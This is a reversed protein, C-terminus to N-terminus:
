RLVWAEVNHTLSWPGPAIGQVRKSYAWAAKHGALFIYPRSQDLREQVQRYLAGRDDLGCGPMQEAADLWGDVEGDQFSTFNFGAGPRDDRSHWFPSLSPDAGVDEWGIVVLDFRQDLLAATVQEFPLVSLDIAYGVARLDAAIREAMQVRLPNDQNTRLTLRLPTGGSMRVGDGDADTWGADELRQAARVPDYLLTPLDLAAWGVTPLVYSGLAYGQGVFVDELLRGIDIAEALSQRVAPNGLIPHPPQPLVAGAADQGPQPTAPDALNLALFSYSNAPYAYVQVQPNTPLGRQVMEPLDLAVLDVTGTELAQRRAAADPMVQLVWREIAPAGKWYTDDRALVIREGPLHEVFRFPGASVSPAADLPNTRLDGFDPAYRRSPLLPHRLSHLASCSPSRLTIVVTSPDPTEIHAIAAARDRFPSQVAESALADYTFKVDAASVPTGDSWTVGSRLTFTYVRGDPSVEWSAALETPTPFGGSPDQGVLRPFLLDVVRQGAPDTAFLPNLSVADAAVAERLDGSPSGDSAPAAPLADPAAPVLPSVTVSSAPPTSPVPADPQNWWRRGYVIALLVIVAVLAATVM